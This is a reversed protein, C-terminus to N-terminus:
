KEDTLDINLKYPRRVGLRKAFAIGLDIGTNIFGVVLRAPLPASPYLVRATRLGRWLRWGDLSRRLGKETLIHTRDKIIFFYPRGGVMERNRQAEVGEGIGRLGGPHHSYDHEQHVSVVVKTADILQAKSARAKYLCWSEYAVRGVAMPPMEDLLGKPYGWFDIGTYHHLRGRNLVDSLLDEEWGDEFELLHDIELDRRQATVLFNNSSEQVMKFARSFSSMLIIDANVFCVIPNSAADEALQFASNLLPTGFENRQVDPIHKVGLEAAVQDTGEDDALLIVECQPRLLTWSRIANRQIIGNHGHFAKPISFLTIM